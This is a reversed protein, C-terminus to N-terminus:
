ALPGSSFMWESQGHFRAHLQQGPLLVVADSPFQGVGEKAVEGRFSDLGCPLEQQPSFQVELGVPQPIVQQFSARERPFPKGFVVLPQRGLLGLFFFVPPPDLFKLAVRLPSNSNARSFSVPM